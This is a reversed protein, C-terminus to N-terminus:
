PEHTNTFKRTTTVVCTSLQIRAERALLTARGARKKEARRGSTPRQERRRSRSRLHQNVNNCPPWWRRAHPTHTPHARTPCHQNEAPQTMRRHNANTVGFQAAMARAPLALFGTWLKDVGGVSRSGEDEVDIM